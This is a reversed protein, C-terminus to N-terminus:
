DLVGNLFRFFQKITSHIIVKSSFVLLAFETFLDAIRRFYEAFLSFLGRIIAVKTCIM